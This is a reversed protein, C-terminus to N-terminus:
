DGRVALTIETERAIVDVSEKDRRPVMFFPNAFLQRSSENSLGFLIMEGVIAPNPEVRILDDVVVFDLVTFGFVSQANTRDAVVHFLPAFATVFSLFM